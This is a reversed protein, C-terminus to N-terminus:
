THNPICLVYSLQPLAQLQGLAFECLGQSAALLGDALPFQSEVNGGVGVSAQERTKLILAIHASGNQMSRGHGRRGRGDDDGADRRLGVFAQQPRVDLGAM